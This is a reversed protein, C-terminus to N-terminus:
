RRRGGFCKQRRSFHCSQRCRARRARGLRGAGRRGPVFQVGGISRRRRAAAAGASGCGAAGLRRPGRCGHVFQFHGLNRGTRAASRGRPVGVAQSVFYVGEGAPPSEERSSSLQSVALVSAPTSSMVTEPTVKGSGNKKMQRTSSSRNGSEAPKSSSKTPTLWADLQNAALPAPTAAVVKRSSNQKPGTTAFPNSPSDKKANGSESSGSDAFHNTSSADKKPSAREKQDSAFPNTPSDKEATEDDAFPNTRPADKKGTTTSTTSKPAKKKKIKPSEDAFPNTNGDDGENLIDSCIQGMRSEKKISDPTANAEVMLDTPSSTARQKQQQRWPKDDKSSIRRPPTALPYSSSNSASASDGVTVGEHSTHSFMKWSPRIWRPDPPVRFLLITPM